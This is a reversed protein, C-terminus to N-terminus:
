VIFRRRAEQESIWRADKPGKPSTVYLSGCQPCRLLLAHTVEDSGIQKVHGYYMNDDSACYGCGREAPRRPPFGGM